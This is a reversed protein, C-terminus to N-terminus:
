YKDVNVGPMMDFDSENKTVVDARLERAAGAILIDGALDPRYDGSNRLQAEVEAAEFGFPGIYPEIRLWDFEDRIQFMTLKPGCGAQIHGIMFEKINV